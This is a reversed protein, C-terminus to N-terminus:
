EKGFEVAKACAQEFDEVVHLLNCGSQEIYAHMQKQAEKSSLGKLRIVVPTLLDNRKFCNIIVGCIKQTDHLGGFFNILIVKTQPDEQLLMFVYEIQEHYTQGGIDCFAGAKGGLEAVLDMSAMGLAAGNSIVGVNGSMHIFKLGQQVTAREM